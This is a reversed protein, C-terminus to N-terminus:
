GFYKTIMMKYNYVSVPSPCPSHEAYWNPMHKNLQSVKHLKSSANAKNTVLTLIEHM